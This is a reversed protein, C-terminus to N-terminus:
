NYTKTIKHHTHTHVHTPTGRGPAHTPTLSCSSPISERKGSLLDHSQILDDPKDALRKIFQARERAGKPGKMSISNGEFTM